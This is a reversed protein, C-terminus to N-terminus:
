FCVGKQLQYFPAYLSHTIKDFFKKFFKKAQGGGEYIDLTGSISHGNGNSSGHLKVNLWNKLSSTFNYDHTLLDYSRDYETAQYNKNSNDPWLVRTLVIDSFSTTDATNLNIAGLTKRYEYSATVDGFFSITTNKSSGTSKWTGKINRFILLVPAFYSFKSVDIDDSFLTVDSYSSWNPVSFDKSFVKKWFPRAELADEVTKTTSPLLLNDKLQPSILTTKALQM